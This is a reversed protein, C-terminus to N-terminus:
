AGLWHFSRGLCRPQVLSRGLKVVEGSLQRAHDLEGLQALALAAGTRWDLLGPNREGYATYWEGCSLFHDAAARWEGIAIEVRGHAYPLHMTMVSKDMGFPIECQSLLAQAAVLQGREILV